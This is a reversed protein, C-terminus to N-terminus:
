ELTSTCIMSNGWLKFTRKEMDWHRIGYQQTGIKHGICSGLLENESTEVREEWNGHLHPGTM